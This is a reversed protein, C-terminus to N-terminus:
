APIHVDQIYNRWRIKRPDFDFCAREEPSLSELLQRTHSTDFRCNLTVYPGYIDVYYLLQEMTTSLSRLRSRMRRTGPLTVPGNLLAQAARLPLLYRRQLRSRYQQVTPFRWAPVVVPKGSRDTMPHKQFYDRVHEYLSRF